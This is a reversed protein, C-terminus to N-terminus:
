QFEHGKVNITYEGVAFQGIQRVAALCLGEVCEVAGPDSHQLFGANGNAPDRAARRGGNFVAGFVQPDRMKCLAGAVLVLDVAGPQSFRTDIKRLGTEHTVIQNVQGHHLGAAERSRRSIGDGDHTFM